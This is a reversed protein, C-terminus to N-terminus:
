FSDRVVTVINLQTYTPRFGAKYVYLCIEVEIKYLLLGYSHPGNRPSKSTLWGGPLVQHDQYICSLDIPNVTKNCLM